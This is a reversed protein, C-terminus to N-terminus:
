KRDPLPKTTYYEGRQRKRVQEMPEIGNEIDKWYADWDFRREKPAPKELAEKTLLYLTYIVSVIFIVPM